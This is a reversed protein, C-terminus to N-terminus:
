FQQLKNKSFQLSQANGTSGYLLLILANGSFSLPVSFILETRCVRTMWRSQLLHGNLTGGSSCILAWSVLIM